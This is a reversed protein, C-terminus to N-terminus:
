PEHTRAGHRARHQHSPAQLRSPIRDRSRGPERERERERLIFLSQFFFFLFFFLSSSFLFPPLFSPLLSPLFPSTSKNKLNKLNIKSLSLTCACAHLCSLPCLSPLVCFGFCAGSESSDACLRIRLKFGRAM